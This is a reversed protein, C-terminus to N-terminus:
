SFYDCRIYRMKQIVQRRNQKRELEGHAAIITEIYESEPTDEFKFNLCEPRAGFQDLTRRLKKHFEIDRAFRKLDDFIIVFRENSRAQLYALLAVMGTRNMFDGGGSVDDTFTYEVEYGREEAYVRCRHEQSDLGSGSTQKKSSVRCYIIAKQPEDGPFPAVVKQSM